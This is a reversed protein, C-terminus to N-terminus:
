KSSYWYMESVFPIKRELPRNGRLTCSEMDVSHLKEELESTRVTMLKTNNINRFQFTGYLFPTYVLQLLKYRCWTLYHGDIILSLLPIACDTVHCYLVIIWYSYCAVFVHWHLSVAVFWRRILTSIVGSADQTYLVSQAIPLTLCLQSTIWAKHCVM